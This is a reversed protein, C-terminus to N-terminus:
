PAVWIAGIGDGDSQEQRENQAILQRHLM